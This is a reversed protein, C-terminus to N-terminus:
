NFAVKKTSRKLERMNICFALTSLEVTFGAFENLRCGRECIVFTKGITLSLNRENAM